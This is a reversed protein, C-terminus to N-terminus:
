ASTVRPGPPARGPHGGARDGAGRHRASAPGALRMGGRRTAALLGSEQAPTLGATIVALARVGRDGCEGAVEVVRAAPVTM